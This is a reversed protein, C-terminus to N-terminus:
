NKIKNEKESFEKHLEEYEMCEKYLKQFSLLSEETMRDNYTDLSKVFKYFREEPYIEPNYRRVETGKFKGTKEDVGVYLNMLEKDNVIDSLKMEGNIYSSIEEKTVSFFAYIKPNTVLVLPVAMYLREPCFIEKYVSVVSDGNMNPVWALKVDINLNVAYKNIEGESDYYRKRIYEIANEITDCFQEVVRDDLVVTFSQKETSTIRSDIVFELKLGYGFYFTVVYDHLKPNYWVNVSHIEYRENLNMIEKLFGVSLPLRDTPNTGSSIM